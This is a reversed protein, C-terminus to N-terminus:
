STVPEITETIASGEYKRLLRPNIKEVDVLIFGDLADSFSQDVGIGLIVGELQLYHKLLTPVGKGDTELESVLASVDDLSPLAGPYDFARLSRLNECTPIKRARIKREFGYKLKHRRLYRLILAQSIPHYNASISVAGFLKTYAPNRRIFMVIGRWLLFLSTGRRQYQPVIYSRGLELTSGTGLSDFADPSYEFITNSYLGEFGHSALIQDVLGIRYAGVLECTENNWLFLHHYHQDFRDLDLPKGTGEGVPRFTLERTRGIEHLMHPIQDATACYVHYTGKKCLLSEAPLAEIESVMSEVSGREAVAAQNPTAAPSSEQRRFRLISSSMQFYRSLSEDTRHEKFRTPPIPSGIRIRITQATKNLLETILLATRVRPHLRSLLQFVASNEGEFFIPVVTASHTRALYAINKHWPADACEGSESQFHSVSGAPFTALCHGEALWKGATRLGSLNERIAARTGFPNIPVLHNEIEPMRSLLSNALLKSDPRCSLILSGLILGDIGGFPHNSVVFVPGTAPISGLTGGSIEYTVGLEDLSHDFFNRASDFASRIRINEYVKNLGTIGAASEVVPQATLSFVRRFLSGERFLGALDILAADQSRNM